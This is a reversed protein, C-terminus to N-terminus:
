ARRHLDRARLLEFGGRSEMQRKLAKVRNVLGEETSLSRERIGKSNTAIIALLTIREGILTLYIDTTLVGLIELPAILRRCFM